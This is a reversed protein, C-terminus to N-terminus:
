FIIKCQCEPPEGSWNGNILCKRENEGNLEYGTINCYYTATANYETLDYIVTLGGATGSSPFDPKGCDVVLLSCNM